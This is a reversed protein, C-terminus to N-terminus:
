PWPAPGMRGPSSRARCVAAMRSREAAGRPAWAGATARNKSGALGSLGVRDPGSRTSEWPGATHGAWWLPQLCGPRSGGVQGDLKSHGGVGVRPTSKTELGPVGKRPRSEADMGKLARM